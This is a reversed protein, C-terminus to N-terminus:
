EIQQMTYSRELLCVHTKIKTIRPVAIHSNNTLLREADVTTGNVGSGSVNLLDELEDDVVMIKILHLLVVRAMSMKVLHVQHLLVVRVMSMKM